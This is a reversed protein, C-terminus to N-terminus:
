DTPMAATGMSAALVDALVAVDQNSSEGLVDAVDEQVGDNVQLGARGKNPAKVQVVATCGRKLAGGAPGVPKVPVSQANGGGEKCDGGGSGMFAGGGACAGAGEGKAAGGSKAASNCNAAGRKLAGGSAVKGNAGAHAARAGRTQALNKTIRM